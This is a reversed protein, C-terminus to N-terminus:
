PRSSQRMRFDRLEPVRWFPLVAILLACISFVFSPRYSGAVDHLLGAMLSGLGAGVANCAYIVGYVAAVHNGAFLRTTISSVIPGRAGQCIGFILVFAALLGERPFWSMALLVSVGIISGAYTVSVINRPGVRDAIAGTGLVGFVSMMSCFGFATAAVLPSFGREVLYVVTQVMISFMGASTFFFVWALGWFARTGMAARVTWDRGVVTSSKKPQPYEPHGQAYRKWPLFFVVPVLVLLVTGM